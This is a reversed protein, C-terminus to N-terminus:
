AVTHTARQLVQFLEEASFPKEVFATWEVNAYRHVQAYGTMMVVPIGATAPDYKLLGILQAGNLGPMKADCLIVDPQVDRALSLAENPDATSTVSCAYPHLLLEVSKIVDVEDDIVLVSLGDKKVTVRDTAVPTQYDAAFLINM